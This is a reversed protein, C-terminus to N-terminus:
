SGTGFRADAPNLWAIIVPLVAVAGAIAYAKWDLAVDEVALDALLATLATALWVRLWSGIPTALFRGIM